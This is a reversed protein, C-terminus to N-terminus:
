HLQRRRQGLFLGVYPWHATNWSLLPYPASKYGSILDSWGVNCKVGQDSYVQQNTHWKLEVSLVCDKLWNPAKLKDYVNYYRDQGYLEIYQNRQCPFFATVVRHYLHSLSTVVCKIERGRWVVRYVRSTSGISNWLQSPAVLCQFSM